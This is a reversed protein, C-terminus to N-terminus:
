IRSLLETKKAAFEEETLAGLDRLKALREITALIEAEGGETLATPRPPRPQETGGWDQHAAAPAPEPDPTVDPAPQVPPQAPAEQFAPEPAPQIAAAGADARPLASLAFQGHQSSFSVGQFPDGWGSQQQGWGGIQHDLADLVAPASGDGFDVAVRRAQPFYAYRMGNQGGTSAPAGLGDPWWDTGHGLGLGGPGVGGLGFGGAAAPPAAFFPGASMAASLEGCLNQVTSQLGANFMDGVMTMGGAMWQGSGGLEPINFQAMSGGGNAVARAMQEVAAPSLGYRASLDAIVARATDTLDTM